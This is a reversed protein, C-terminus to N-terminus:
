EPNMELRCPISTGDRYRFDTTPSRTNWSCRSSKRFGVCFLWYIWIRNAAKAVPTGRSEWLMRRREDTLDLLSRLGEIGEVVELLPQTNAESRNFDDTALEDQEALPKLRQELRRAQNGLATYGFTGASGALRHLIGYTSAIDEARGSWTQDGRSLRSVVEALLDLESEAKKRFSLRLRALKEAVGAPANGDM